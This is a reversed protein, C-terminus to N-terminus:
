ARGTAPVRVRMGKRADGMPGAASPGGRADRELGVAFSGIVSLRRIGRDVGVALEARYRGEICRGRRSAERERWCNAM